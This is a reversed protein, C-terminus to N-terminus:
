APPPAYAPRSMRKIKREGALHYEMTYDEHSVKGLAVMARLSALEREIEPDPQFEIRTKM